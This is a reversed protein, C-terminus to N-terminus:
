KSSNGIAKFGTEMEIINDYIFESWIPKKNDRYFIRVNTNSIDKLLKKVWEGGCDRCMYLVNNERDLHNSYIYNSEPKNNMGENVFLLTENNVKVKWQINGRKVGLEARTYQGKLMEVSRNIDIYKRGIFNPKEITEWGKGM